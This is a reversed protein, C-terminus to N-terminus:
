HSHYTALNFHLSGDMPPLVPEPKMDVDPAPKANRIHGPPSRLSHQKPAILTTRQENKRKKTPPTSSTSAACTPPPTNTLWIDHARAIERGLRDWTTCAHLDPDLSCRNARIMTENHAKVLALICESIHINVADSTVWGDLLDKLDAHLAMARNLKIYIKPNTVKPSPMNTTRALKTKHAKHPSSPSPPNNSYYKGM